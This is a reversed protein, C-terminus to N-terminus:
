AFRTQSAFVTFTASGTKFISLTYMDIGNANGGTPAVGGQWKPTVSVGDITTASQYYATSGQTALFALTLTQGTEMVSDLTTSSNGRVNLTWNASANTTYYVVSQTLADYDITGTAATASVACDELVIRTNVPGSFVAAAGNLTGSVNAGGTVALTTGNWTLNASGAFAGSNNYQIQTDSGGASTSVGTLQSGNGLFYNATVNGTAAITGTASINGATVNATVSANGSSVTGTVTLSAASVASTISANGANLNGSFTASAGTISGTNGISAVDNVNITTATFWTNPAARYLLAAYEAGVPGVELGGNNAESATAANNAVNITIDNITSTQSDVTTTTGNVQLNGTIIVTGNGSALPIIDINGNTSVISDSSVTINASRLNGGTINSTTVIEGSTTINGGTVNGTAVVQAATEVNGTAILKGSATVNGSTLNGSVVSTTAALNTFTGNSATTNGIVINNIAGTRQLQWGGGNWVWTKDGFTYTEDLVPNAPFQLPM